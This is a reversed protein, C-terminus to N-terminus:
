SGTATTLEDVVAFWRRIRAPEDVVVAFWRRIRAPEDVVVTLVPVHRRLSRLRDGHPAHDGHYGWVGRLSTAGAAHAARLRRVLEAYLPRGKVHAQESTYVMLKQRQPLGSPDAAALEQVDPLVAEIRARADVAVSVIPLDESLSLLRATQLRQKAGFGEIGRQLVSTRLEARAYLDLLADAVFGGGARDREGFYTTLKLCDEDM